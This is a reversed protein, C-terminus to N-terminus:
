YNFYTGIRMLIFLLQIILEKKTGTKKPNFLPSSSPDVQGMVRKILTELGERYPAGEVAAAQAKRMKVASVMQM